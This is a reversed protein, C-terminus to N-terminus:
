GTSRAVQILNRHAILILGVAVSADAILLHSRGAFTTRQEMTM